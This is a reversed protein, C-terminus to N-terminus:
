ESCSIACGFCVMNKVGKFRVKLILCVVVGCCLDIMEAVNVKQYVVAYCGVIDLFIIYILFSM